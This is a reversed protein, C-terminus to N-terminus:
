DDDKVAHLQVADRTKDIAVPFGRCYGIRRIIRLEASEVLNVAESVSYERLHYPNIPVGMPRTALIPVEMILMGGPRLNQALSRIMKRDDPVHELTHLSVVVDFQQGGQYVFSQGDSAIFQLRENEPFRERAAQIYADLYDSGVVLSARSAMLKSGLGSGCAIDLVRAGHPIYDLLFHYRSGAYDRGFFENEPHYRKSGLIAERKKLDYVPAPEFWRV